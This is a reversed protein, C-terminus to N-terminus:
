IYVNLTDIFFILVQEIKVFNEGTATGIRICLEYFESLKEM